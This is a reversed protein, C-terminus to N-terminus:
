EGGKEVEKLIERLRAQTEIGLEAQGNIWNRFTSYAIGTRSALEKFTIGSIAKAIRTQKRLNM